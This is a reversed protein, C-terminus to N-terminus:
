TIELDFIMELIVESEGDKLIMEGAELEYQKWYAMTDERFLVVIYSDNLGGNM